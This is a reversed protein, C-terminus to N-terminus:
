ASGLLVRRSDAVLIGYGMFGFVGGMQNRKLVLDDSHVELPQTNALVFSDRNALDLAVILEKDDAGHGTPGSNAASPVLSAGLVDTFYKQYQQDEGLEYLEHIKVGLIDLMTNDGAQESYLRERVGDPVQDVNWNLIEQIAECGMYVNTARGRKLSASNGGGNRKMTCDIMSFLRRTFQGQKAALDYVTMGRDAGAKLITHWCNDNKNQVFGAMFAEMYRSIVDWRAERAYKLPWSVSNAVDITPIIVRDGFATREPIHGMGPNTYARFENETGPAIPDIPFEPTVGAPLTIESFIGGTIDGVMVGQRITPGIVDFFQTLAKARLADDTSATAKIIQALEPSAAEFSSM